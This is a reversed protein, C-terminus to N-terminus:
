AELTRQTKLNRQTEEEYFRSALMLLLLKKNNFKKAM